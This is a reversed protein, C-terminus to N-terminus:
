EPPTYDADQPWAEPEGSEEADEDTPLLVPGAPQPPRAPARAGPREADTRGHTRADPALSAPSRADPPSPLWTVDLADAGGLGHSTANTDYLSRVWSLRRLQRKIVVRNASHWCWVSLFLNVPFFPIGFLRAKKLNRLFVNYEVLNRVQKDIMDGHQAILIVDWGLKRHQSFFRVIEKRDQASWSRANMWNHAEDLVMVARGERCSCIADPDEKVREPYGCFCVRLSALEDLNETFHYRAEVDEEFRRRRLPRLWLVWSRLKMTRAWGSRLRVNGAVVKGERLARVVEDVACFSKGAGPPGTRLVITM